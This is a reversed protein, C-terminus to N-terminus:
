VVTFPLRRGRSLSFASGSRASIARPPDNFSINSARLHRLKVLPVSRKGHCKEAVKPVSRRQVAFAQRPVLSFGDRVAAFNGEASGQLQHDELRPSSAARGIACETQPPM